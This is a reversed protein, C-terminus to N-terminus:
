GFVTGKGHFLEKLGVLKSRGGVLKAAQIDGERVGRLSEEAGGLAGQVQVDAIDLEARHLISLLLAHAM